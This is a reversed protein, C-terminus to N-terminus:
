TGVAVAQQGVTEPEVLHCAVSVKGTLQRLPPKVPEDLILELAGTQINAKRIAGLAPRGLAVAQLRKWLYKEVQAPDSTKLILTLPGNMEVETVRASEPSGERDENLLKKLEDQVEESNWGCIGVAM